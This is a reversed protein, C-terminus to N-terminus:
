DSFNKLCLVATKNKLRRIFLKNLDYYYKLMTSYNSFDFVDSCFDEYVDEPKTQFM